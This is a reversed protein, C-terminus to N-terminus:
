ILHQMSMENFLHMKLSVFYCHEPHGLRYILRLLFVARRKRGQIRETGSQIHHKQAKIPPKAANSECSIEGDKGKRAKRQDAVKCCFFRHVSLLTKTKFCMASFDTCCGPRCM